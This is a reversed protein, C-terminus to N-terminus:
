IATYGGDIPISAGNIFSAADSLLFLILNSVEEATGLRNAPHLNKYAKKEEESILPTDIVGPCVANVRIGKSAYASGAARTLNIVGGKAASYAVNTPVAVLGFMSALNVVSGGSEQKLMQQIAYKNTLMLGTYDVANVKEWNELTENAITNQDGGIGASCLVGDIRGFKEVTAEFAAKIDEEKTVDLRIGVAGIEKAIEEVKPSYDAIVVEAKKFICRKATALGLGSAGGTIFIVKNRMDMIKTEYIEISM